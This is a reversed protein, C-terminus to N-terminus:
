LFFKDTAIFSNSSNAVYSTNHQGFAVESESPSNLSRNVVGFGNTSLNKFVIENDIDEVIEKLNNGTFSATSTTSDFNVDEAEIDGYIVKLWSSGNYVYVGVDGDTQFILSSLGPSTIALKDAETMRPIMLGSSTSVIDLAGQPTTTGIGVQSSVKSSISFLFCSFLLKRIM